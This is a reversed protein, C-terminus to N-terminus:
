RGSPPIRYPVPTPRAPRIGLQRAVGALFILLDDM